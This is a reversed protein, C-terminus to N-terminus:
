PLILCGYAILETAIKIGLVCEVGLGSDLTTIFNHKIETKQKLEQLQQLHAIISLITYYCIITGSIICLVVTQTPFPRPM